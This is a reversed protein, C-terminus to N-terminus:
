ETEDMSNQDTSNEDSGSAVEEEIKRQMEKQQEVTKFQCKSSGCKCLSPNTIWYEPGYDVTLEEFVDIDRIAQVMVRYRNGIVMAVFRLSADCSHNMYRTWNGFREASIIANFDDTDPMSLTVAYVPDDHRTPKVEGVYEDLIEENQIPQLLRVGAGKDEFHILEVLPQLIDICNEPNCDCFSENCMDCVEGQTMTPDSPYALGAPWSEPKRYSLFDAAQYMNASINIHDKDKFQRRSVEGSRPMIAYHHPHDPAIHGLRERRNGRYSVPSLAAEWSLGRIKAFLELSHKNDNISSCLDSWMTPNLSRAAERFAASNALISLLMWGNGAVFKSYRTCLQKEVRAINSVRGITDPQARLRNVANHIDLPLCGPKSNYLALAYEIVQYMAGTQLALNLHVFNEQSMEVTPRNIFDALQSTSHILGPVSCAHIDQYIQMMVWKTHNSGDM